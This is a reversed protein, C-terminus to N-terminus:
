DTAEDLRQMVSRVFPVTLRRQAVLAEADLRDLLQYLSAMDRRSRSLLFRATEDPLELGRQGARLRLANVRGIEDLPEVRFVPLKSLRSQLDALRFGSDRPAAHASVVLLVQRDAAQNLLDFLALEFDDRGAISDIDDLCICRRTALGELIGPGSDVFRRLPVFVADEGLRDCVANLLHSKGTAEIGWLWCGTHVGPVPQRAADTIQMLFAVLGANEAAWFSGFVGRDKLSLPLALQTM